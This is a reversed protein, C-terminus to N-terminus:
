NKSLLTRNELNDLRKLINTQVSQSQELNAKLTAIELQQKEIIQQQEQVAKVLPVVFQGYRLGYTDSANKPADVGSFTFNLSKAAAEVEQAIFGSERTSACNGGNKNGVFDSYAKGDLDYTVPRLKQIFALGSVDQRIDSKFRADSLTTWGVIGGISTVTASGFRMQNNATISSNEGIATSYNFNGVTSFANAGLATNFAGYQNQSMTNYGIATNGDANALDSLSLAGFASNSIGVGSASNLTNAGVATNNMGSFHVLASKGVAVCQSSQARYRLAEFGVAVNEDGSGVQLADLGVATNKNGTSQEMAFTGFASNGNGGNRMVYSGVATNNDGPQATINGSLYNDMAMAGIAVNDAGSQMNGLANRGVAINNEGNNLKNLAQFGLASNNQLWGGPVNNLVRSGVATNGSGFSFSSMCFYGVATNDNGSFAQMASTGFATGFTTSYFTNSITKYGFSTNSDSIVGSATNDRKFYVDALNTSGIFDTTANVVNGAMKWVRGAVPLWGNYSNDYYYFGPSDNLYQTTLFVMQGYTPTPIYGFQTVRPILIGDTGNPTAPNSASIDLTAAPATTNIGVQAQGLIPLGLAFLYFLKM